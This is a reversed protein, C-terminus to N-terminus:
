EALKLLTEGVERACDLPIFITENEVTSFDDAIRATTIEIVGSPHQIIAIQPRDQIVLVPDIHNDPM